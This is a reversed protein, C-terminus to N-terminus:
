YCLRQKHAEYALEVLEAQNGARRLDRQYQAFSEVEEAERFKKENRLQAVIVELTKDAIEQRM